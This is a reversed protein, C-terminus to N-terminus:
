LEDEQSQMKERLKEMAKKEIRSVYSRSIHMKLAVERQALADHGNLGYRMSIIERERPNLCENIYLYLKEIDNKMQVCDEIKESEDQIVHMFSLANGESDTGVPEDLSIECRKNKLARFHMLIENHICRAAYTALRIQKEGDFSDVAKILGITGISILDETDADAESGAYKKVVHAVLRLNHEIIKDRACADGGRMREICEAEEKASLPKPFATGGSMYGAFLFNKFWISLLNLLDIWM